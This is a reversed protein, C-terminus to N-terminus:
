SFFFANGEADKRVSNAYNKGPDYEEWVSAPFIHKNREYWRRDVVKTLNPDDNAGELDKDAEDIQGNAKAATKSPRSLLSHDKNEASELPQISTLDTTSAYDFLRRGNAGTTKNIVFYYIEYHHPIIVDGRVLMLDDVGVRAWERRSSGREGGVGLEAGVKRSRDLFLWAPEGKKIKCAGGPINTGDYFVFPIVVEIAKVAEQMLLFEKRLQERTSAEKLLASKTVAKPAVSITANPGVRKKHASSSTDPPNPSNRSSSNKSLSFRGSQVDVAVDKPQQSEEDDVGFSLKGRAVATKRKKPQRGDPTNVGDSLPTAARSSASAPTFRGGHNSAAERERQELAEARRKRFDSLQVLGVTQTKLVDEATAAQATFRNPTPVRSPDSSSPTSLDM